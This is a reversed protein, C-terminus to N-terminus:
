ADVKPGGLREEKKDVEQPDPGFRCCCFRHIYTQETYDGWAIERQLVEVMPPQEIRKKGNLLKFM